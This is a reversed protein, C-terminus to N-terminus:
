EKDKKSSKEKKSKKQTKGGGERERKEKQERFSIMWSAIVQILAGALSFVVTDKVITLIGAFPFDAYKHANYFWFFAGICFAMGAWFELRRLRRLRLSDKPDHVSVMRAFTYIVAGAAYMWKYVEMWVTGEGFNMFPGLMAVAILLLGFTAIGEMQKRRMTRQEPTLNKNNFM